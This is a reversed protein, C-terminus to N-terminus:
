VRSVQAAACLINMLLHISYTYTLLQGFVQLDVPIREHEMALNIKTVLLEVM